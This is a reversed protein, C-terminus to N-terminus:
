SRHFKVFEILSRQICVDCEVLEESISRAEQM